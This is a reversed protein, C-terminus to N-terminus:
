NVMDSSWLLLPGHAKVGMSGETTSKRGKGQGQRKIWILSVLYLDSQAEIGAVGGLGMASGGGQGGRGRSGIARNPESIGIM